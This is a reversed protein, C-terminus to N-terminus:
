FNFGLRVGFLGGGGSRLDMGYRLGIEFANFQVGVTPAVILSGQSTSLLEGNSGYYSKFESYGVEGMVFFHHQIIYKYGARVPIQLGVKKPQGEIDKPDYGIAGGTLTVFGPGVHYSFRITLGVGFKYLDSAAGTPIGGEIGFGVSFKKNENQAMTKSLCLTLVAALMIVTKM